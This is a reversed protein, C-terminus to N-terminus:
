LTFESKKADDYFMRVTDLSFESLDKDKYQEYKKLMDPPVTIIDCGCEEAQYINLVERPSAWLIRQPVDSILEKILPMPNIGTDAIRGAFISLIADCGYLAKRIQDVQKITFIATINLLLGDEALSRILDTSLKGETNTIPIKVYIKDGWSAIQRAQREMEDWEDAFVEFSIPLGDVIQLADKAFREYDTVGAKAMLTPNSTFGRVLPNKKGEKISELDASDLYIIM